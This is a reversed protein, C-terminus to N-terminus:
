YLLCDVVNVVDEFKFMMCYINLIDYKYDFFIFFMEFNDLYCVFIFVFVCEKIDFIFYEM